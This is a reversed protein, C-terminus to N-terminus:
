GFPFSFQIPSIQSKYFSEAIKGDFHVVPLFIVFFIYFYYIFVSGFPGTPDM